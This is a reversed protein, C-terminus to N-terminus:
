RGEAFAILKGKEPSIIAPIRYCAYGEEGSVFVEHSYAIALSDKPPQNCALFLFATSTLLALLTKM